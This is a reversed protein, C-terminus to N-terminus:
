LQENLPKYKGSYAEMETERPSDAGVPAAAVVLQPPPPGGMAGVPMPVSTAQMGQAYMYSAQVPLVGGATQAPFAVQSGGTGLAVTQGTANGAFVM